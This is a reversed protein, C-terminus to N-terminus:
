TAVAYCYVSEQRDSSIDSFHADKKLLNEPLEKNAHSQLFQHFNQQLLPAFDDDQVPPKPLISTELMYTLLEMKQM